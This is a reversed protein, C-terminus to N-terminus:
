AADFNFMTQMRLALAMDGRVKIKGQMFASIANAEGSLVAYLDDATSILTMQPSPAEGETIACTGDAIKLWWQSGNDGTLTIQITTDLGAAKEPLFIAPMNAIFASIEDKTPM